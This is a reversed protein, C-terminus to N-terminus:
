RETAAENAQKADAFRCDKLSCDGTVAQIIGKVQVTLGRRLKALVPDNIDAIWARIMKTGGPDLQPLGM